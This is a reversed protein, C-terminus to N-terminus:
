EINQVQERFRELEAKCAVVRRAIEGDNAKSGVTNIERGMEQVLFDLARGVVGGARLLDDAQRFHSDLRVLEETVDAKDAFLAVEKLLREDGALETGPLAEGIRKLLNARYTEAVGPARAAIEGALARLAALRARLDRGLAAGEKKRMAQLKSLAAELAKRMAPWLAELDKEGPEFSVLGPVSLLASAKLDDPLGLKKAASRLASVTSRALGADVRAGSAQAADAWAVRIEGTVRGRALRGQVLSLVRSEFSALFRPLGVDVDLQKRNVSSLEAEVRACRGSAAGTGRGTMSMLSM